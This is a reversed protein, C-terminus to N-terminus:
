VKPYDILLGQNHGTKSKQGREARGLVLAVVPQQQGEEDVATLGADYIDGVLLQEWDMERLYGDFSLELIAAAQQAEESARGRLDEAM